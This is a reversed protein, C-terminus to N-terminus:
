SGREAQEQQEILRVCELRACELAYALSGLKAAEAIEGLEAIEALLYRPDAVSEGFGIDTPLNIRKPASIPPVASHPDSCSALTPRIARLRANAPASQEPTQDFLISFLIRHLAQRVGSM